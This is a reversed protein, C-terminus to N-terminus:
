DYHLTKYILLSAEEYKGKRYLDIYKNIQKESAVQYFFKVQEEYKDELESVDFDDLIKERVLSMASVFSGKSIYLFYQEKEEDTAISFFKSVNRNKNSRKGNTM